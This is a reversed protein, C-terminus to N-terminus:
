TAHMDLRACGCCAIPQWPQKTVGSAKDVAVTLPISHLQAFAPSTVRGYAPAYRFSPEAVSPVIMVCGAHQLATLAPAACAHLM